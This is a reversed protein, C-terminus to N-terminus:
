NQNTTVIQHCSNWDLISLVLLNYSKSMFISTIDYRNPYLKAYKTQWGSAFSNGRKKIYGQLICDSEKEDDFFRALKKAKNKKELRDAEQNV